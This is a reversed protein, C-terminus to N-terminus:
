TIRQNTKECAWKNIDSVAATTNTFDIRKFDTLYKQSLNKEFKAKIEIEKSVWMANSNSLICLTDSTNAFLSPFSKSTSPSEKLYLVKEFEQKTIKNAGDYSMLLLNYISFPSILLNKNEVKLQKYMDFSFKNLSNSIENTQAKEKNLFVQYAAKKKNDLIYTSNNLSDNVENTQAEVLAVTLGLLFYLAITSKAKM